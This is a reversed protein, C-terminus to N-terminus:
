AKAAQIKKPRNNPGLREVIMYWFNLHKNVFFYWIVHKQRWHTM